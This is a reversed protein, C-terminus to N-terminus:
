VTTKHCLAVDPLGFAIPEAGEVWLPFKTMVYGFRESALFRDLWAIVHPWPQAWFWEKDVHAYQRVFPLVAYDAWSPKVGLLWETETLREEYDMIIRAAIDRQEGAVVAEGPYRNPYKYRDLARKFPGDNRDILANLTSHDVDLWGDPDHTSLAWAGVDRSEDIVSGDQLVLVPVTAKPSADIMPPPKDRLLVERLEVAVGASAIALRARMAYPCRRFSYLIPMPTQNM